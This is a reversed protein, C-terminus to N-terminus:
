YCLDHFKLISKITNSIKDSIFFLEFIALLKPIGAKLDKEVPPYHLPLFDSASILFGLKPVIYLFNSTLRKLIEILM